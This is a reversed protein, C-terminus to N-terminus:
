DSSGTVSGIEESSVQFVRIVVVGVSRMLRVSM